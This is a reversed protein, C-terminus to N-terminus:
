DDDLEKPEKLRSQMRDELHKIELDIFRMKEDILSHTIELRRNIESNITFDEYVKTKFDFLSKGIFVIQRYLIFLMALFFTMMAIAATAVIDFHGQAITM